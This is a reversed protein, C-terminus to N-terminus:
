PSMAKDITAQGYTRGDRYHIEDWKPRHLGSQRFLRDMQAASNNTWYALMRCLALDALHHGSEGGCEYLSIDGADFLRRFKWGNAANRAKNLVEEDGAIRRPVARPVKPVGADQAFLQVHLANVADSREAVSARGGPVMQGTITLFAKRDYMEVGGRKSGVDPLCGMAVIRIGTGSPSVETYSDIQRWISCAKEDIVGTHPDRCNDIDIFVFPDSESTAFGIGTLGYRKMGALAEWITGWHGPDTKDAKEGTRPDRPAKSWKGPRTGPAAKWCMWQRWALLAQPIGAAFVPLWDPESSEVPPM